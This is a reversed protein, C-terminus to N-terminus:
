ESGTALKVRGVLDLQGLLSEAQQVFASRYAAQIPEANPLKVTLPNRHVGAVRFEYHLHPGTALGSKGVYGITQGQQVRSGVKLGPKYRSMHAYLTTYKGGHQLVVTRGYGGKTGIFAVKGDGAAKIPTGTAAAYDVGRHPRKVGLVPHYREPRFTSSIRRFDVPSRLFAKRMSSGDPSYYSSKGEADVFRVAQVARGQNVFEAALIAGDGLKHGDVYRQEFLVSFRDGSRIDLAFDIDWGFIGALEMILNDTLGAQRGASFLSTEIAGAAHSLRTEVVRETLSAEFGGNSEKIEITRTQSPVYRLTLLKGEQIQFDLKENPKLNRLEKSPEGSELVGQLITSGLGVRSFIASLTDGSEVTVTEWKQPSDPQEEIRVVRNPQPLALPVTVPGFQTPHSLQPDRTAEADDSPGLLAILGFLGSGLVLLHLHTRRLISKKGSLDKCDRNSFTPTTM